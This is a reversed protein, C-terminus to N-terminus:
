GMAQGFLAAVGVKLLVGFLYIVLAITWATGSSMRGVKRLGTAALVLGYIAFVDVAAGLTTLVPQEARSFLVGLNAHVLGGRAAAAEAADPPSVFLLVVNAIMALVLPPFSSYTWVALAQKYGLKKGAGMSALMYILGGLAIVIAFGVFPAFYGFIYKFIPKTQMEVAQEKQEASMQAAQPSNEIAQRVMEGYDVKQFLLVTFGVFFVAMILGAVLFRPRARLAEFTRGPEFFINALTEPTSMQPADDRRPAPPPPASPMPPLGAGGVREAHPEAAAAGAPAPTIPAGPDDQRPANPDDHPQSM